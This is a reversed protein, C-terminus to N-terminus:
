PSHALIETPHLPVALFIGLWPSVFFSSFKLTDTHDHSFSFSFSFSITHTHTHTHTHTLSFSHSLTYLHRYSNNQCHKYAIAIHQYAIPINSTRCNRLDHARKAPHAHYPSVPDVKVTQYAHKRDSGSLAGSSIRTQMPTDCGPQSHSPPSRNSRITRRRRIPKGVARIVWAGRRAAVSIVLNKGEETNM